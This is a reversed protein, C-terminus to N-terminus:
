YTGCYALLAYQADLQLTQFFADAVPQIRPNNPFKNVLTTSNITGSGTQPAPAGGPAPLALVSSAAFLYNTITFLYSTKM